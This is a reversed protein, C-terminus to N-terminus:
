GLDWTRIYFCNQSTKITLSHLFDYIFIGKLYNSPVDPLSFVALYLFM